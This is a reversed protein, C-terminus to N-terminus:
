VNNLLENENVNITNKQQQQQQKENCQMTSAIKEDWTGNQYM